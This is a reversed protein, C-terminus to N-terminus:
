KKKELSYWFLDAETIQAWTMSQDEQLSASDSFSSIEYHPCEPQEGNLFRHQNANM